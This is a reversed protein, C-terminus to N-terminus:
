VPIVGCYHDHSSPVSKITCTGPGRIPWLYPSKVGNIGQVSFMKRGYYSKTKLTDSQNGGYLELRKAGTVEVDDISTKGPKVEPLNKWSWLFSVHNSKKATLSHSICIICGKEPRRLANFHWGGKVSGPKRLFSNNSANGTHSYGTRHLCYNVFAACWHENTRPIEGDAHTSSGFYPSAMFYQNDIDVGKDRGKISKWRSSEEIALKLWPARGGSEMTTGPVKRLVDVIERNIDNWEKILATEDAALVKGHREPHRLFFVIDTLDDAETIGINAAAVIGPAWFASGYSFLRLLFDPVSKFDLAM